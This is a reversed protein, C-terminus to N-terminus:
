WKADSRAVNSHLDCKKKNKLKAAEECHVGYAGELGRILIGDYDVVIFHDIGFGKTYDEVMSFYTWYRDPIHELAYTFLTPIKKLM